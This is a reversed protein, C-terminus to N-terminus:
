MDIQRQSGDAVRLRLKTIPKSKNVYIDVILDSQKAEKKSQESGSISNGAGLFTAEEKEKKVHKELKEVENQRSEYVETLKTNGKKYQENKHQLYDNEAKMMEIESLMKRMEREQRM